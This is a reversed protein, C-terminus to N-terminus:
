EGGGIARLQALEENLETAKRVLRDRQALLSLRRVEHGPDLSLLALRGIEIADRIYEDVVAKRTVSKIASMVTTHHLSGLERAIEPFSPRPRQHERLVFMVIQRATTTTKSRDRGLIASPDLHFHNSIAEIVRSTARNPLTIARLSTTM